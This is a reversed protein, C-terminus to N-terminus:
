EVRGVRMYLPWHIDLLKEPAGWAASLDSWILNLPHQGQEQLYRRVGSWTDLFGALQDLNWRAQMEFYPPSIEPFPFPLTQYHEELYHFREPWYGNLLATFFRSLIQDVAPTILPLHYVWVALIAEPKAVRHVARYFPELDFWHVAQSATILDVSHSKLDVQDARAVRYEIREDAAAQSIQDASADSAIVRLFRKALENAAQGSGTGCDWALQRGPSISALYDFLVGPYRPRFRAYERAQASFHDEFGTM